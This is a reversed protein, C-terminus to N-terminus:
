ASTNKENRLYTVSSSFLVHLWYMLFFLFNHIPLLQTVVEFFLISCKSSWLICNFYSTCYRITFLISVSFIIRYENGGSILEACRNWKRHLALPLPITFIFIICILVNMGLILVLQAFALLLYFKEVTTMCRLRLYLENYICYLFPFSHIRSIILYTIFPKLYM